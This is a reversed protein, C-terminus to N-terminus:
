AGKSSKVLTRAYMDLVEIQGLPINKFFVRCVPQYLSNPLLQVNTSDGGPHRWRSLTCNDVHVTISSYVEAIHKIRDRGLENILGHCRLYLTRLNPYRAVQTEGPGVFMGAAIDLTEQRSLLGLVRVSPLVPLQFAPPGGTRCAIDHLWLAVVNSHELFRAAAREFKAWDLLELRLDLESRGPLLASMLLRVGAGNLGVLDLLQLAPLEIPSATSGKRARISMNRLRLTQIHPNSTLVASLRDMTPCQYGSLWGLELTVLGTFPLFAVPDRPHQERCLWGMTKASNPDGHTVCLDMIDLAYEQRVPAVISSIRAAHPRLLSILQELYSLDYSLQGPVYIHIPVGRSRELWLVIPDKLFPKLGKSPKKVHVHSWFPHYQIAVQRWRTSVSSITTLVDQRHYWPRGPTSSTVIAIDFVGVLIEDPISDVPMSMNFMQNMAPRLNAIKAQILEITPCHYVFKRRLSARRAPTSTYQPLAVQLNFCADHFAQTAVKLQVWATQWQALPDM